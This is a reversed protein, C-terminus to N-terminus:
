FFPNKQENKIRMHFNHLLYNFRLVKDLKKLHTVKRPSIYMSSNLPTFCGQAYLPNVETLFIKFQGRPTRNTKYGVVKHVNHFREPFTLLM